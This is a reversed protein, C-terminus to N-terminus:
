FCQHSRRRGQGNTPIEYEVSIKPQLVVRYMAEAVSFYVGIVLKKRQSMQFPLPAGLSAPCETFRDPQTGPM